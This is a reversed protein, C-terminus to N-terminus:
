DLKSVNWCVSGIGLQGQGLDTRNMYSFQLGLNSYEGIDDSVINLGLGGHLIEFPPM